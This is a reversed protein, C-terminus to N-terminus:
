ADHKTSKVLNKKTREQMNSLKASLEFLESKLLEIKKFRELSSM